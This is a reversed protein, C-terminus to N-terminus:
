WPSCSIASSQTLADEAPYLEQEADLVEFYYAYGANYRLITLAM